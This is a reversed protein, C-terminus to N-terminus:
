FTYKVEIRSKTKDKDAAVVNAVATNSSYMSYIASVKFNKSMAYAADLKLEAADSGDNGNTTSGYGVTVYTAGATVNKAVPMSAGVLLATADNLGGVSAQFVKFDTKADNDDDVAIRNSAGDNDAGTVAFGAVYSIDGAKGSAVVKTLSADNKTAVVKTDMSGTSHRVDLTVPGVPMSAHLSTLTVVDTASMYWVDAKVNGFSGIAAFANVHGNGLTNEPSSNHNEFHGAALTVGAVPVLAVVGTGTVGDDFPGPAGQKGALVTATAVKATFYGHTVNVPVGGDATTTVADAEVKVTASVSDNVKTSLQLELDYDNETTHVANEQSAHEYRYRIMGSAEVGKITEELSKASVTSTIGAVAVAAVLSMKIMKTM